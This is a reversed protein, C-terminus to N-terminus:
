QWIDLAEVFSPRNYLGNYVAALPQGDGFRGGAETFSAKSKALFGEAIPSYAYFALGYKPITPFIEDESRRAVASYNGQYVTPVVFNNEKAVRNIEEIGDPLNSIGLRKFAGSKYLENLGALTEKPSIRRDLAYM